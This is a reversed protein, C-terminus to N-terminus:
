KNGCGSKFGAIFGLACAEQVNTTSNIKRVLETDQTWDDTYQTEDFCKEARKVDKLLSLYEERKADDLEGDLDKIIYDCRIADKINALISKITERKM